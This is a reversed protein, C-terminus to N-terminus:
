YHALSGDDRAVDVARRFIYLSVPLLVVTFGALILLDRSLEAWGAGTLLALRLARVAYTVPVLNSFFQLWGPLIEVPYYIGGVLSAFAGFLSTVPEGRKIIMIIGAAIIGISAFAVTSLVLSVLAALYNAGGLRLTLLLSGLLLYLLVRVTTFAYSWLASGSVIVALPAPTMLMAELMGTTQAERLARAFGNLGVGFYGSFAVGIIVFSFYDSNYPALYPRASDGILESVFFFTATNFLIGGLSTLFGLRYSTETRFDRVVFSWLQSVAQRGWSLPGRRTIQLTTV